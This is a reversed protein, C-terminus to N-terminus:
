RFFTKLIVLYSPEYNIQGLKKKIKKVKPRLIKKISKKVFNLNNLYISAIEISDMKEINIKKKSIIPGADLKNNIRHFTLDLFKWNFFFKYFFIFSGRQYKFNGLHFNYIPFKKNLIIKNFFLSIGFDYNKDDKLILKLNKLKLIKDKFKKKIFLKRFSFISSFLLFIILIKIKRKLKTKGFYIEILYNENLIKCVKYLIPFTFIEDNVSYIIVKKKSIKM